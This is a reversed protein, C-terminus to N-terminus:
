KMGYIQSEQEILTNFAKNFAPLAGNLAGKLTRWSSLEVCSHLNLTNVGKTYKPGTLIMYRFVYAAPDSEFGGRSYASITFKYRHGRVQKVLDFPTNPSERHWGNQQFLNLLDAVTYKSGM